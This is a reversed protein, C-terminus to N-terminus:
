AWPMLKKAIETLKEKPVEEAVSYMGGCETCRSHGVTRNYRWTTNKGCSLCYRISEPPALIDNDEKYNTTFSKLVTKQKDEYYAM